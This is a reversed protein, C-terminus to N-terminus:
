SHQLRKIGGKHDIHHYVWPVLIVTHCDPDEHLVRNLRKPNRCRNFVEQESCNWKKMLNDVPSTDGKFVKLEEVTMGYKKAMREFAVDHLKSRDANIGPKLHEEKLYPRIGEKLYIKMTKGNKTGGDKDFVPNGNKVKIIGERDNLARLIERTKYQMLNKYQSGNPIIYNPNLIWITKSEPDFWKGYGNMEEEEEEDNKKEEKKQKEEQFKRKQTKRRRNYLYESFYEFLAIFAKVLGYCIFFLIALILAAVLILLLWRWWNIGIQHKMQWGAVPTAYSMLKTDNVVDLKDAVVMISGTLLSDGVEPNVRITVPITVEKDAAVFAIEYENNDGMRIGKVRNGNADALYITGASKSRVADENFSITIESQCIVSDPTGLWSFPPINDLFKFPNPRYVGEDFDVMAIEESQNGSDEKNSCGVIVSVCLIVCFFKIIRTKM